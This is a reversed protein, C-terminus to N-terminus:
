GYKPLNRNDTEFFSPMVARRTTKLQPAKGQFYLNDSSTFWFNRSLYKNDHEHSLDSTLWDMVDVRFKNLRSGRHYGLDKALQINTAVHINEDNSIDNAVTRFGAGGLFRYMPLLVFFISAELTGAVTIPSYLDALTSAYSVFDSVTNDDDELVPFVDRLKNLAEDHKIEDNQNLRLLVQIGDDLGSGCKFLEDEIMQGVPLELQSMALAKSLTREAGEVIKQNPAVDIVDWERRRGLQQKYFVRSKDSIEKM